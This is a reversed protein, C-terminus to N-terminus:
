SDRLVVLDTMRLLAEAAEAPIGGDLADKAQRALGDILGLTEALAGSSRFAERVDEVERSSLGPRGLRETMMRQSEASGMEWAKAVLATRKGERIDTDRDKGTVAPDGFTGLVDDRLQFAEGLPGGYRELAEIVHPGAGGLSAGILLPGVVSYSGSKLTAVQRAGAEDVNGRRARLLDLFEGSVAQVRMRNFHAFAALVRDAPFEAGALLRDALAAALDGALIAASRGFREAREPDQELDALDRFATPQGRRLQSRDIVDDHILASMHLLEVASGARVIGPGGAEGAARHGWYCFLPRLRKGGAQLMRDLAEVLVIAEPAFTQLSGREERLCRDLEADVSRLFADAADSRVAPSPRVKV